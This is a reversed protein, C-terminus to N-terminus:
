LAVKVANHNPNLTMINILDGDYFFDYKFGTLRSKDRCYREADQRSLYKFTGISWGKAYVQKDIKINTM